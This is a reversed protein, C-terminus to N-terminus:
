LSESAFERGAYLDVRAMAGKWTAGYQPPLNAVFRKIEADLTRKLYDTRAKSHNAGKERGYRIHDSPSQKEYFEEARINNGEFASVVSM